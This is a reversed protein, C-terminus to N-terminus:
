GTEGALVRDYLAGMEAAWREQTFREEFRRRAANGWRAPTGRAAAIEGFAQAWAAPDEPDLLRGTIGDEVVEDLGAIRAALVGRGAAFAELAALPMGELRSSLALVHVSSLFAHPDATRGHFRVRPAVRLRAAENELAERLPGEGAIELAVDQAACRAVAALVLDVRKRPELSGLVGVRLLGDPPLPAPPGPDPVGNAVVSVRAEPVGEGVLARRSARSVVVIAAIRPLTRLKIWRRRRSRPLATLHETTIVPRGTRGALWWPLLGCTGDYTNPLNVHVLHPDLARV